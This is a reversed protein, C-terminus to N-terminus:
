SVLVDHVANNSVNDRKFSEKCLGDLFAVILAQQSPDPLKFVIDALDDPDPLVDDLIDQPVPYEVTISGVVDQFRVYVM